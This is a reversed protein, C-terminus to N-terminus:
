FYPMVFSALEKEYPTLEIDKMPHVESSSLMAITVSNKRIGLWRRNCGISYETGPITYEFGGADWKVNSSYVEGNPYKNKLANLCEMNKDM